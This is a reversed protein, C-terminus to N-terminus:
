AKRLTFIPLEPPCRFRARIMATGVGRSVYLPSITDRYWGAVFRGSGFPTIAPVLPLRIQGGHTHGSLVLAPKAEGRLRGVFGPAHVLWVEPSGQLLGARAKAIDPTGEVPDDIGVIALSSNGVTVERHANVLLEVGGQRYADAAHLAAGSHHEWNGLTAVTALTGRAAAAFATVEVLGEASETMDGTLVVVEPRERRLHALVVAAALGNAPFHVDTVQAIRIGDLTNALGRIPVDHRSVQLNEPESLFADASVAAGLVGGALGLLKRRSLLM